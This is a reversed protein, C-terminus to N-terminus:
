KGCLFTVALHPSAYIELFIGGILLIVVVSRLRLGREPLGELGAYLYLGWAALYCLGQPLGNALFPIIGWIGRVRSMLVLIAGLSCGGCLLVLRAGTQRLRSSCLKWIAVTQFLRMPLVRFGAYLRSESAKQWGEQIWQYLQRPDAMQMTYCLNSMATSLLIGVGIWFLMINGTRHRKM